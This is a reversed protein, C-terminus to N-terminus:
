VDEMEKLEEVKELELIVPHVKAWTIEGSVNQLHRVVGILTAGSIIYKKDASIM